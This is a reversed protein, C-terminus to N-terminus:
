GAHSNRVTRLLSKMQITKREGLSLFQSVQFVCNLESRKAPCRRLMGNSHRQLSMSFTELLLSCFRVGAETQFAIASMTPQQPNALIQFGLLPYALAKPM